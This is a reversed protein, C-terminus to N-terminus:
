VRTKTKDPINRQYQVLVTPCASRHCACSQDPLDNASVLSTETRQQDQNGSNLIRDRRSFQISYRQPAATM